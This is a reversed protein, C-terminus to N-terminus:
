KLLDESLGKWIAELLEKRYKAGKEKCIKKLAKSVGSGYQAAKKARFAIEKPLGLKIALKRLILKKKDKKSGIRLKPHIKLSYEVLRKDLYPMRLEKCFNSSIVFDRYLDRMWINLMGKVCANHVNQWRPQLHREYGAFLEETGIGSFVINEKVKKLCLYAPIAVEVKVVDSEEILRVVDVAANEVDKLSVELIQPSESFNNQIKEVFKVDASDPLGATYLSYAIDLRECLFALLSSDIGGSFLIAVKKEGRIRVADELLISLNKLIRLENEVFKKRKESFDIKVPNDGIKSKFNNLNITVISRPNLANVNHIDSKEALFKRESGFLIFNNKIRYFLPCIGIPDRLLTVCSDKIIVYAWQGNVQSLLEINESIEEASIEFKADFVSGFGAVVCEELIESTIGKATDPLKQFILFKTNEGLLKEVKKVKSAEIYTNETIILYRRCIKALKRLLIVDNEGIEWTNRAIKGFLTM